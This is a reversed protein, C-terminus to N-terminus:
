CGPCFNWEGDLKYIHEGHLHNNKSHKCSQKPATFTSADNVPPHYSFNNVVSVSPKIRKFEYFDAARAVDWRDHRVENFAYALLRKNHAERSELQPKYHPIGYRMGRDAVGRLHWPKYEMRGHVELYDRHEVVEDLIAFTERSGRPSRILREAEQHVQTGRYGLMNIKVRADVQELQEPGLIRTRDLDDQHYDTRVSLWKRLRTKYQSESEGEYRGPLYTLPQGMRDKMEVPNERRPHADIRKTLEDYSKRNEEARKYAKLELLEGHQKEFKKKLYGFECIAIVATLFFAVSAIIWVVLWFVTINVM